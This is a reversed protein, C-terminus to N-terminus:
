IGALSVSKYDSGMMYDEVKGNETNTVINM